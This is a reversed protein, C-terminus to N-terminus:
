HAAAPITDMAIVYLLRIHLIDVHRAQLMSVVMRHPFPVSVHLLGGRDALYPPLPPLKNDRGTDQHRTDLAQYSEM